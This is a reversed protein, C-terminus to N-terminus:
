FPTAPVVELLTGSSDSPEVILVPRSGDSAAMVRVGRRRLEDAAAGVDDVELTIGLWRPGGHELWRAALGEPDSPAILRLRGNGLPIDRGRAGMWPVEFPRGCSLRSSSRQWGQDYIAADCARDLDDVVAIVAAVQRAGAPQPAIMSVNWPCGWEGQEHLLPFVAFGPLGLLSGLSGGPRWMVATPGLQAGEM